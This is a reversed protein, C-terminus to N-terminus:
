AIFSIASTCYFMSNESKGSLENFVQYLNELWMKAVKLWNFPFNGSHDQCSQTWMHDCFIKYYNFTKIKM